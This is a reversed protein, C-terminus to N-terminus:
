RDRMGLTREILEDTATVTILSDVARGSPLKSDAGGASLHGPARDLRHHAPERLARHADAAEALPARQGIHASIAGDALHAFLDEARMRLEERGRIYDFLM